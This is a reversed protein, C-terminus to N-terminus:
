DRKARLLIAASVAAVLVVMGGVSVALIVGATRPPEVDMGGAASKTEPEVTLSNSEPVSPYSPGGQEGGVEIEQYGFPTGPDGLGGMGRRVISVM